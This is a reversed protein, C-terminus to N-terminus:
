ETQCINKSFGKETYFADRDPFFAKVATSVFLRLWISYTCALSKTKIQSVKEYGSIYGFGTNMALM